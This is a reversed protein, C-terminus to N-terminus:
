ANLNESFENEKYANEVVFSDVAFSSLACFKESKFIICQLITDSFLFSDKEL